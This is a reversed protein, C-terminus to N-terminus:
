FTDKKELVYMRGREKQRGRKRCEPLPIRCCVKDITHSDRLGM